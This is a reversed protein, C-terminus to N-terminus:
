VQGKPEPNEIVDETDEEEHINHEYQTVISLGWFSVFSDLFPPSSDSEVLMLIGKTQGSELQQSSPIKLMSSEDFTVDRSM